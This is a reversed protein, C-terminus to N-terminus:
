KGTRRDGEEAAARVNHATPEPLVRQLRHLVRRADDARGQGILRLALRVRASVACLVPDSPPPTTRHDFARITM